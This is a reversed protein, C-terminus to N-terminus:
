RAELEGEALIEPYVICPHELISQCRAPLDEPPSWGWRRLARALHCLPLGVVAAYCGEIEQAPRFGPHQIAYAGAKDLPDGTALYAEIEEETYPRMWVRTTAVELLHEDRRPLYLAVATHVAHPRGRLAQLMARAEQVNEPKGLIRRDLDVVTDAALILADPALRAGAIAKALALRIACAGPDEDPEPTEDISVRLVEVPHGLLQILRQRRPSASALVWREPIRDPM